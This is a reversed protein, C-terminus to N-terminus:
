FLCPYLLSEKQLDASDGRDSLIMIYKEYDYQAARVFLVRNFKRPPLFALLPKFSLGIPTGDATKLVSTQSGKFDSFLHHIIVASEHEIKAWWSLVPVMQNKMRTFLFRPENGEYEIETALLPEQERIPSKTFFKELVIQSRFSTTQLYKSVGKQPSFIWTLHIGTNNPKSAHLANINGKGSFIVKEHPNSSFMRYFSVRATSQSRKKNFSEEADKPQVVAVAVPESSKEMTIFSSPQISLGNSRFSGLLRASQEGPGIQYWHFTNSDIEISDSSDQISTTRVVVSTTVHGAPLVPWIQQVTENEPTPLITRWTKKEINLEVLGKFLESNLPKIRSVTWMNGSSDEFPEFDRVNPTAKPGVVIGDGFFGLGPTLSQYVTRPGNRLLAEYVLAMGSKNNIIQAQQVDGPIYWEQTGLKCDFIKTANLITRLEDRQEQTRTAVQPPVSKCGALNLLISFFIFLGFSTKKEKSSKPFIKRHTTM